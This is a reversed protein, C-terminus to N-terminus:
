RKIIIATPADVRQKRLYNKTEQGDFKKIGRKLFEYLNWKYSWFYKKDKDDVGPELITTYFDIFEKIEEHSYYKGIRGLETEIDPTMRKHVVIKKLNWYDLIEQKITKQM